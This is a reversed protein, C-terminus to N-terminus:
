NLYSCFWVNLPPGSTSRLAPNRAAPPAPCRTAVSDVVPMAAAIHAHDPNEVADLKATRLEAQFPSEVMCDDSTHSDCPLAHPRPPDDSESCHLCDPHSTPQMAMACPQLANAITALVFVALARSTWAFRRRRSRAIM